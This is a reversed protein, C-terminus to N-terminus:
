CAVSFGQDSRFLILAFIRLPLLLSLYGALANKLAPNKGASLACKVRAGPAYM